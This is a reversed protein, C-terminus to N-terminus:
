YTVEVSDTEERSAKLQIISKTTRKSITGLFGALTKTLKQKLFRM